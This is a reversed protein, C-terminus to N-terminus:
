LGRPECPNWNLRITFGRWEKLFRRAEQETGYIPDHTYEYEKPSRIFVTWGIAAPDGPYTRIINKQDDYKAPLITYEPMQAPLRLLSEPTNLIQKKM